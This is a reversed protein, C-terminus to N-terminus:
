CPGFTTCNLILTLFPLTTDASSWVPGDFFRRWGEPESRQSSFHCGGGTSLDSFLTLISPNFGFWIQLSHNESYWISSVSALFTIRHQSHLVQNDQIFYWKRRVELRLPFISGPKSPSIHELKAIILGHNPEISFKFLTWSGRSIWPSTLAQNDVQSANSPVSLSQLKVHRARLFKSIELVFEM